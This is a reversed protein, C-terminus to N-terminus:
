PQPDVRFSDLFDDVMKNHTFSSRGKWLVQYLRSGCMFIRGRMRGASNELVLERGSCAGLEKVTETVVKSESGRAVGDRVGDLRVTVEVVNPYDLYAVAFNGTIGAEIM